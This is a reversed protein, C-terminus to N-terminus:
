SDDSQPVRVTAKFDAPISRLEQFEEETLGVQNGSAVYDTLILIPLFNGTEQGYQFARDIKDLNQTQSKIQARLRRIQKRSASKAADVKEILSILEEAAQEAQKRNRAEIAAQVAPKLKMGNIVSNDSDTAMQILNSFMPVKKKKKPKAVLQFGCALCHTALPAWYM